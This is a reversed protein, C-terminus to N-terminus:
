YRHIELLYGVRPHWIWRGGFGLGPYHHIWSYGSTDGYIYKSYSITVTTVQVVTSVQPAETPTNKGAGTSDAVTVSMVQLIFLHLFMLKGYRLESGRIIATDKYQRRSWWSAAYLRSCTSWVQRTTYLRSCTNLWLIKLSSLRYSVETISAM